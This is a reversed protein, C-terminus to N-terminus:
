DRRRLLYTDFVWGKRATAEARARVIRDRVETLPGAILLEDPTGLYAAWYIDLGAPDITAFAQRADLM